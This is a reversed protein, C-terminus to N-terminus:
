GKITVMGKLRLDRSSAGVWIPYDGPAVKWAHAKTSWYSFARANLAVTAHASGGAPVNVRAFGKLQRPPQVLGPLGPLGVYVQAIEAGAMKGTNAIDFDVTLSPSDTSLMTSSLKLGSYAYTTYSLGYGFPYLPEINNADFWRYGVLVGESYHVEGNVGPYTEPTHGPLDAESKPFTIPLKGSPNYDGMLVAAVANGDEEGPYWAEVIAPVSESWPMLVPGGSKMVVVTRPNAAAVAEVLADQNGTLTLRHDVGEKQLDGVMVIAVDATQAKAAAAAINAGPDVTVSVGPGLRKTFGDVPLVVYAPKVRSSGGGGTQAVVAYPGILVVSKLSAAKLPLLAGRNRLLVMGEEAWGRAIAGNQEVPIPKRVPPHDWVGAEMMTRFRRILHGDIVSILAVGQEVATKLSPGLFMGDPMELDLGNMVTPITSHVANFDSSVFGKFGWEGKLIKGLLFGNESCYAGNLKNYASMVSYVHGEKVSAEFAPFYIERLTREDVIVNITSRNTEQNNAAFHKVNGIIGAGQIGEINAAALRGALFPDEGYAEFTRGNQPVRAINVDPAELFTNGTEAAESGGLAGYGRAAELDWTAALSIPAPLATAKSAHGPGAPGFGAPGNTVLLDPIGLRPIGVVIRFMTKTSTGHMQSIKEDLTMQTVIARARADFDQQQARLAPALLAAALAAAHLLAHFRFPGRLRLPKALPDNM